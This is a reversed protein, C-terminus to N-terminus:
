SHIHNFFIIIERIAEECDEGEAKLNVISGQKLGLALISIVSKANAEKAASKLVISSKFRKALVALEAAPRAHLGDSEGIEIVIEKILM